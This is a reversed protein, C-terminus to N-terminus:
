PNVKIEGGCPIDVPKTKSYAGIKVTHKGCLVEVKPAHGVVPKGDIWVRRGKTWNPAIITGKTPLPKVPAVVVPAEKVIPAPEPPPPPSSQVVPEPPREWSQALFSRKGEGRAFLAVAVACLVSAAIGISRWPARPTEELVESISIEEIEDELDNMDFAIPAISPPAAEEILELDDASLARWETTRNADDDVVGFAPLAGTERFSPLSEHV